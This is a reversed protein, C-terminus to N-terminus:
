CSIVNKMVSQLQIVAGLALQQLIRAILKASGTLLTILRRTVGGDLLGDLLPIGTSLYAEQKIQDLFHHGPQMPSLFVTVSEWLFCRRPLNNLKEYVRLKYSLNFSEM